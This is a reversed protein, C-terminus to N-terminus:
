DELFNVMEKYQKCGKAPLSMTSGLQM